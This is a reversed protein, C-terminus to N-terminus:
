RLRLLDSHGKFATLAPFRDARVDALQGMMATAVCDYASRPSQMSDPWSFRASSSPCIMIEVPEMGFINCPLRLIFFRFFGPSSALPVVDASLCLDRPPRLHHGFPLRITRVLVIVLGHEILTSAKLIEILVVPIVVLTFSRGEARCCPCTGRSRTATCLPQANHGIT